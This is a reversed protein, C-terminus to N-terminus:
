PELFVGASALDADIYVFRLGLKKSLVGGLTDKGGFPMGLMVINAVERILESYIREADHTNDIGTFIKSAEVSQGVLMYLGNYAPVKLREAELLLPTRAPYYLLDIVTKLDTFGDLPFLPKGGAAGYPTANIIIESDVFSSFS